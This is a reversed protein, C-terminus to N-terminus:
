IIQIKITCVTNKITPNNNLGSPLSAQLAIYKVANIEKQKKKKKKIIALLVIIEPDLPGLKPIKERCSLTKCKPHLHDIQVEKELIELSTTMAVFKTSFPM